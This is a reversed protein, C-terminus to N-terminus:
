KAEAHRTRVDHGLHGAAVCDGGWGLSKESGAVANRAEGPVNPFDGFVALPALPPRADPWALFRSLAFAGGIVGMGILSLWGAGM